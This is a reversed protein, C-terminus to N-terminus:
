LSTEVLLMRKGSMLIIIVVVRDREDVALVTCDKEEEEEEFYDINDTRKRQSRHEKEVKSRCNNYGVAILLRSFPSLKEDALVLLRFPPSAVHPATAVYVCGCM